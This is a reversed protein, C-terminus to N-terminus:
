VYRLHSVVYGNAVSGLTGAADDWGYARDKDLANARLATRIMPLMVLVHATSVVRAHWDHKKRKPLTKYSRSVLPSILPSILQIAWFFLASLVIEGAHDPLHPLGLTDSLLVSYPLLRTRLNEQLAVVLSGIPM